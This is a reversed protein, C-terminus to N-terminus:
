GFAALHAPHIEKLSPLVSVEHFYALHDSTDTQKGYLVACNHRDTVMMWRCGQAEKKIREFARTAAQRDAMDFSYKETMTDINLNDWRM